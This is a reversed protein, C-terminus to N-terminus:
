EGPKPPEYGEPFVWNDPYLIGKATLRAGTDYFIQLDPNWQLWAKRKESPSWKWHPATDTHLRDLKAKKEAEEAAKKAKKERERLGDREKEVRRLKALPVVGLDKWTYLTDGAFIGDPQRVFPADFGGPPEHDAWSM